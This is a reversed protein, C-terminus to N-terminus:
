QLWLIALALAIMSYFLALDVARNTPKDTNM